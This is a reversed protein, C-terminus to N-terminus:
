QSVIKCHEVMDGILDDFFMIVKDLEGMAEMARLTTLAGPLDWWRDSDLNNAVRVTLM